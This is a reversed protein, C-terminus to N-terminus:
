QVFLLENFNGFKILITMKLNTFKKYEINLRQYVLRHQRNMFTSGPDETEVIIEFQVDTGLFGADCESSFGSQSCVITRM